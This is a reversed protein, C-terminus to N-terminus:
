PIHPISMELFFHFIIPRLLWSHVFTARPKVSSIQAAQMATINPINQFLSDNSNAMNLSDCESDANISASRTLFVTPYTGYKHWRATASSDYSSQSNRVKTCGFPNEYGELRRSRIIELLNTINTKNNREVYFPCSHDTSHHSHSLGMALCNICTLQYKHQKGRKISNDHDNTKHSASCIACFSINWM